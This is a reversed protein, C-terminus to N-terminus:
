KKLNYSPILLVARKSLTQFKEKVVKQQLFSFMKILIYVKFLNTGVWKIKTM